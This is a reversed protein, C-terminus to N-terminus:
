SLARFRPLFPLSWLLVGIMNLTSFAAFAWKLAEASFITELKQALVPFLAGSSFRAVSLVAAFAVANQPSADLIFASISMTICFLGAGMIANGIAPILWMAVLRTGLTYTTMGLTFLLISGALFPLRHEAVREQGGALRKMIKDSFLGFALLGVMMGFGSAIFVAGASRISFDYTAKYTLPIDIYLWVQICYFFSGLFTAALIDLRPFTTMIKVTTEWLTQPVDKSFLSSEHKQLLTSAEMDQPSSQGHHKRIADLSTERMWILTVIANASNVCALMVFCGRWGVAQAILGGLSPGLVPGCVGGIAMLALAKSREEKKFLDVITAPGLAMPTSGAIGALFRLIILVHISGSFACLLNLLALCASGTRFIPLRGIRGSLPWVLVPGAAFGFIYASVSLHLLSPRTVALDHSVQDLAPTYVASALPTALALLSVIVVQRWKRRGAWRKPDLLDAATHDHDNDNDDDSLDDDPTDISATAGEATEATARSADSILPRHRRFTPSPLAAQTTDNRVSALEM